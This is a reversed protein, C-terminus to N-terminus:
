GEKGDIKDALDILKGEVLDVIPVIVAGLGTSVLPVIRKIASCARIIGDKATEEALDLGEEKLITLIEKKVEPTM